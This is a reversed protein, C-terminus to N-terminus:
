ILFKSSSKKKIEEIKIECNVGSFGSTCNCKPSNDVITCVGDNKCFFDAPCIDPKIPLNSTTTSVELLTTTTTKLNTQQSTTSSTRPTTQTSTSTTKPTTTTTTSTITTVVPCPGSKYTIDDIAIDSLHSEGVVAEIVVRFEDFTNLDISMQIWKYGQEGTINGILKSNNDADKLYINLQGVDEGHMFYYLSFCSSLEPQMYESVLIAKDGEYSPLSSELYLYIGEKTGLTADVQPGTSWSDTEGKNLLWDM